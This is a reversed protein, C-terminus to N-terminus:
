TIKISSLSSEASKGLMLGILTVVSTWYEIKVITQTYTSPSVSLGYWGGGRRIGSGVSPDGTDYTDPVVHTGVM